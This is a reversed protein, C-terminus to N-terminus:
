RSPLGASVRPRSLAVEMRLRMQRTAITSPAMPTAMAMCACRSCRMSMSAIRFAM